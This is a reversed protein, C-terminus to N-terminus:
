HVAKSPLPIPDDEELGEIKKAEVEILKRIGNAIKTQAQRDDVEDTVIKIVHGLLVMMQDISIMQQAQILRKRESEVLRQRRDIQKGMENQVQYRKGREKVLRKLQKLYPQQAQYDFRYRLVEAVCIRLEEYWEQSTGLKHDVMLDTVITDVLAIEQRLELLRPDKAGVKQRAALRVPLIKSWVGTRYNGAAPGALSKGGHKRCRGNVMAPAKCPKGTTRALAGCEKQYPHAM